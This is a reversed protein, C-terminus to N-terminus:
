PKYERAAKCVACSNVCTVDCKKRIDDIIKNANQQLFFRYEHSNSLGNQKQISRNLDCSSQYDTFRRGDSMVFKPM